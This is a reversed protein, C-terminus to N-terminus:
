ALLSQIFSTFDPSAVLTQRLTDDEMVKVLQQSVKDVAFNGLKDPSLLFVLQIDRHEEDWMIGKPVVAVAVYGADTVAEVPHPVAMYQSFVVSSYSERLKLQKLLETTLERQEVQAIRATLEALVQEKTQVTHNFYFM